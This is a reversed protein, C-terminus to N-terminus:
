KEKTSYFGTLIRWCEKIRRKLKISSLVELLEGAVKKEHKYNEIKVYRKFDKTVLDEMKEHYLKRLERRNKKERKGSM